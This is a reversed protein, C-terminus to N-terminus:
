PHEQANAFSLLFALIDALEDAVEARKIPEALLALADDNKVWRFHEMLEAAETAIAMALNKPDHFQEWDRERIFDSIGRRLDSITTQEDTCVAAPGKL